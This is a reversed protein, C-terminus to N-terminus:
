NDLRPGEEDRDTLDSIQVRDLGQPLTGQSPSDKGRSIEIRCSM